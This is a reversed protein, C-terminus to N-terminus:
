RINSVLWLSTLWGAIVGVKYASSKHYEQTIGYGSSALLTTIGAAVVKNQRALTYTGGNIFGALLFGEVAARAENPEPQQYHHSHHHPYDGQIVYVEPNNYKPHEYRYDCGYSVSAISLLGMLAMKYM